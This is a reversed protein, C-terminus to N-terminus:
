RTVMPCKDCEMHMTDRRPKRGSIYRDHGCSLQVIWVKPNMPSRDVRQVTKVQKFHTGNDSM